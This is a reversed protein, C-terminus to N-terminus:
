ETGTGPPTRVGADPGAARAQGAPLVEWRRNRGNWYWRRETEQGAPGAARLDHLLQSLATIAEDPLDTWVQLVAAPQGAPPQGPPQEPPSVILLQDQRDPKHMPPLVSRFAAVLWRRLGAYSDEAAKAAMAQVFPVVAATTVATLVITAPDVRAELQGGRLPPDDPTGDPAHQELYDADQQYRPGLTRLHAAWRLMCSAYGAHAGASCERPDGRRPIRIGGDTNTARLLHQVYHQSEVDATLEALAQKDGHRAAATYLRARERAQVDRIRQHLATWDPLAAAAAPNAPAVRDLDDFARSRGYWTRHALARLARGDGAQAATVIWPDTVGHSSTIWRDLDGTDDAARM